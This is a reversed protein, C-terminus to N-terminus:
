EIKHVFEGSKAKKIIICFLESLINILKIGCKLFRSGHNANAGFPHRFCQM